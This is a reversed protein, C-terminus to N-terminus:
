EASELAEVLEPKNMTSFGSIGQARAMDKLEAVTLTSLDDEGETGETTEDEPENEAKQETGKIKYLKTMEETVEGGKGVVLFAAEESGEDVLKSKDANTYYSKDAVKM